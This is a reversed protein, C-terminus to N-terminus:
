EEELQQPQVNAVLRYGTSTPRMRDVRIRVIRGVQSQGVAVDKRDTLVECVAVAEGPKAVGKRTDAEVRIVKLTRAAARKDNDAWVQGVKVEIM